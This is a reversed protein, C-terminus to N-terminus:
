GTGPARLLNAHAKAFVDRMPCASCLRIHIRRVSVTIQAAVKLLQLRITGATAKALRTGALATARLDRMLLYAFTSLWLRLQNSALSATSTRDAFLDQQQEKIRNEMDGRACYFREYLRPGSALAAHRIIWSETIGLSTVIFRPNTKGDTVEAKGIVRREREWSNLTRYRLEAFCRATGPLEPPKQAGGARAAAAAAPDLLAATEWYAPQLLSELRANRALGFVYDVRPQSEIWSMLAERCFGSDARIIIRVSKGFRRRIAPIIKQLAGLTGDSGDRDATRLQAWLPIDGCFCYLPLYCYSDYYGHYFRGEQHGHVPDDTADFDLIIVGSKRPISKIGEALLLAEIQEPHAQIKKTTANTGAAATELRNLTSKGALPKGKDAAQLRDEGLVDARGCMAALLPDLRLKDHDNIDEYGHALGLIRQRLMVTLDHEVLTQNRRDTFCAALKACLGRQREVEGLLLGGGDSSLHGGSFDAEVKRTGVAQFGFTLQSCPTKVQTSTM